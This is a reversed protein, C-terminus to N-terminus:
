STSRHYTVLRVVQPGEPSTWSVRMEIRRIGARPVDATVTWSRNYIGGANGNPGFNGDEYTGPAITTGTLLRLSELRDLALTTAVAASNGSTSAKQVTALSNTLGLGIIAFLTSAVLAELLAGGAESLKM